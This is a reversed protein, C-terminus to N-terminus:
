TGSGREAVASLFTGRGLALSRGADDRVEAEAVSVQRGPRVLRGTVHLPGLTAARLYHVTLDVTPVARGITGVLAWDAGLDLLTALVGGHLYGTVPDGVWEPRPTATLDIRDRALDIVQLGLWQHFPSALLRQEVEALTPLGTHTDTSM